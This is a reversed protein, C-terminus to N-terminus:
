ESLKVVVQNEFVRISGYDPYCPMERVDEEYKEDYEARYVSTFGCYYKLFNERSWNVRFPVDEMSSMEIDAFEQKLPYITEDEVDGVFVIEMDSRYGETGRIEAIMVTYYSEVARQALDVYLYAANAVNIYCYIIGTGCLLMGWHLLPRKVSDILIIPLIFILVLAYEMLIYIVNRGSGACMIDMLNIAVPFIVIFLAGLGAKLYEKKLILKIEKMITFLFVTLYSIGILIRMMLDTSLGMLDSYLMSIMNKYMQVLIGPIMRIDIQGMESIGKHPTLSTHFIWLFFYEAAFYLIMGLALCVFYKLAKKWIVSVSERGCFCRRILDCLLLGAILPFYAQYIGMSCAILLVGSVQWIVKKGCMIFYVALAAMLISLSFYTAMYMFLFNGTISPFSTLVGGVIIGGTVSEIGLAETIVVAAISLLLLSVIGIVWPASYNGAFKSVVPGLIEKLWCGHPLGAGYARINYIDDSNPLKNAFAYGHAIVGAAMASIFAYKSSPKIKKMLSIM